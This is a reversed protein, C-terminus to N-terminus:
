AVALKGDKKMLAFEAISLVLEASIGEHFRIIDGEGLKAVKGDKLVELRQIRLKDDTTFFVEYREGAYQMPIFNM